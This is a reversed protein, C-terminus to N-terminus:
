LIKEYVRMPDDLMTLHDVVQYGLCEYFKHCRYNEPCDETYAAMKSSGLLTAMGEIHGLIQAGIGNRRHDPHVGFWSLWVRDQEEPHQYCGATAVLGGNLYYLYDAHILMERGLAPEHFLRKDAVFHRYNREIQEHDEPATFCQFTLNLAEKFTQESLVQPTLHYLVEPFIHPGAAETVVQLYLPPRAPMHLQDASITQNLDSQKLDSPSTVDEQPFFQSEALNPEFLPGNKPGLLNPNRM